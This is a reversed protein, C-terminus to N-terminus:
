LRRSIKPQSHCLGFVSCTILALVSSPSHSGAHIEKGMGPWAMREIRGVLQEALIVHM